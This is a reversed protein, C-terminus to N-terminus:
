LRRLADMPELGAAKRSALLGSVIGTAVAIFFAAAALDLSPDFPIHVHTPQPISPMCPFPNMTVPMQGQAGATWAYLAAIGAACGLLGGIVGQISYELMFLRSVDRRRWGVARLLGIESYRETVAGLATRIFLIIIAIAVVITVARAARQAMMSIGGAEAMIGSATFFSLRRRAEREDMGLGRGLIGRAEEEVAEVKRPDSLRVFIENVALDEGMFLPQEERMIAHGEDLPLFVEAQAARVGVPVFIGIVEFELECLELVDGVEKKWRDAYRQDILAVGSDGERLMRGDVMYLEGSLPGFQDARGPDVGAVATMSIAEPMWVWFHLQGGLDEVGDINRLENVLNLPVPGLTRALRARRYPGAEVVRQIIMHSSSREFINAVERRLSRMVGWVSVLMAVGVFISIITLLSRSKRRSVERWAMKIM